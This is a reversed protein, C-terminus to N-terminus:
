RRTTPVGSDRRAGKADGFREIRIAAAPHGADVLSDAVAEVFTTAGCVFISPRRDV